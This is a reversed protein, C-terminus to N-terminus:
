HYPSWRSRCTIACEKGVRREESRVGLHPSAQGLHRAAAGGAEKSTFALWRPSNLAIRSELGAVDYILGRDDSQAMNKVLDTLGLGLSPLRSDDEPRLQEVTFGAHHLLTWFANGPGAYYHGRTASVVGPATGCFAVRLGPPLYDPLVPAVGGIPIDQSTM